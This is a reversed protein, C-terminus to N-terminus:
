PKKQGQAVANTAASLGSKLWYYVERKTFQMTKSAKERGAWPNPCRASCMMEVLKKTTISGLAWKVECELIDPEQHTIVSNHNDLDQLDNKYLLFILLRLYASSVMRIASLWSSSFLMKIFTFSSLLFAPKFSLMWFVLIMADVGMIDHCISPSVISVTLSNEQAGFDSYITVSAM